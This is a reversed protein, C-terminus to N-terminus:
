DPQTNDIAGSISQAAEVLQEPKLQKWGVFVPCYHGFIRVKQLWYCVCGLSV